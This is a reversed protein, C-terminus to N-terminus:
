AVLEICSTICDNIYSQLIQPPDMKTFTPYNKIALRKPSVVVRDLVELPNIVEFVLSMNKM